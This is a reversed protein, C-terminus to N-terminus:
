LIEPNLYLSINIKQNISIMKWTSPPKNLSATNQMFSCLNEEKGSKVRIIFWETIVENWNSETTFMVYIKYLNYTDMILKDQFNFIKYKCVISFSKCCWDIKYRTITVNRFKFCIFTLNNYFNSIWVTM